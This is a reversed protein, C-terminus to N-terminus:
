KPPRNRVMRNYLPRINNEITKPTPPPAEPHTEKVWEHLVRAQEAITPSCEGVKVRRHFEREVLHKSKPPRGPYGTLHKDPHPGQIDPTEYLRLGDEFSLREGAEVKEFIDALPGRQLRRAMFSDTMYAESAGWACCIPPLNKDRSVRLGPLKPRALPPTLAGIM